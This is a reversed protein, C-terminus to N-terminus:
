VAVSILSIMFVYNGIVLAIIFITEIDETILKLKKLIFRSIAAIGIGVLIGYVIEAFVMYVISGIHTKGEMIILVIMTLMYFVTDNSGSELELLSATKYKLSLKKSEVTM